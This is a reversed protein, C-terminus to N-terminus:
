LPVQIILSGDTRKSAFAMGASILAPVPARKQEIPYPADAVLGVDRQESKNGAESKDPHQYKAGLAAGPGPAVPSPVADLMELAHLTSPRYPAGNDAKAHQRQDAPDNAPDKVHQLM